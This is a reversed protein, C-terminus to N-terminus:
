GIHEMEMFTLICGTVRTFNQTDDNCGETWRGTDLVQCKEGIVTSSVILMACM